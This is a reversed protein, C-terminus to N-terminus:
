YFDSYQAHLSQTTGTGSTKTTVSTSHHM